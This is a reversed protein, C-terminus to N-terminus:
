GVRSLCDCTELHSQLCQAVKEWSVAWWDATLAATRCVPLPQSAQGVAMPVFVAMRGAAPDRLHPAAANGGAESIAGVLHSPAGHGPQRPLSELPWAVLSACLHSHGLGTNKVQAAGPPSSHLCARPARQEKISRHGRGPSGQAVMEAESSGHAFMEHSCELSRPWSPCAKLTGAQPSPVKEVHINQPSGQLHRHGKLSCSFYLSAGQALGEQLLCSLGAGSWSAKCVGNLGGDGGKGRDVARCTIVSGSM